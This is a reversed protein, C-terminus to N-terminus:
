NEVPTDAYGCRNQRHLGRVQDVVALDLHGRVLKGFAPSASTSLSSQCHLAATNYCYTVPVKGANEALTGHLDSEIRWLHRRGKLRLHQGPENFLHFGAAHESFDRHCLVSPCTVGAQAETNRRRVHMLHGDGEVLVQEISRCGLAQQAVVHLFEEAPASAL